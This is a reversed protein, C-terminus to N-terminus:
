NKWGVALNFLKALLIYVLNLFFRLIEQSSIIHPIFFTTVM